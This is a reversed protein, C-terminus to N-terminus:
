WTQALTELEADIPNRGQKRFYAIIAQLENDTFGFQQRVQLLGADDLELIGVQTLKFEYQPNEPFGFQESKVVHQIIPNVLLRSCIVELQGEDLHGQLLYRKATKIARVGGIGLDRVAKM